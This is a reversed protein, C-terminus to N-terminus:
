QSIKESVACECLNILFGVFIFSFGQFIMCGTRNGAMERTEVM